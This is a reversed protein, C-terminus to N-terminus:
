SQDLVRDLLRDIIVEDQHGQNTLAFVFFLVPRSVISYLVLVLVAESVVALLFSTRFFGRCQKTPEIGERFLKRNEYLVIPNM